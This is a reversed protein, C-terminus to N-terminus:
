HKDRFNNRLWIRALQQFAEMQEVTLLDVMQHYKNSAAAYEQWTTQQEIFAALMVEEMKEGM